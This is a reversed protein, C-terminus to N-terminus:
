ETFMLTVWDVFRKIMGGEAVAHMAVVEGSFIMEDGLMVNVTGMSQRAAIPAQILEAVDVAATM